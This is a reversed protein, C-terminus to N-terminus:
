KLLGPFFKLVLVVLVTTAVATIFATTVLSAFRPVKDVTARLAAVETSLEVADVSKAAIEVRQAATDLRNEVRGFVAASQRPKM